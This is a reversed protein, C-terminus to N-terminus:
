LAPTDAKSEASDDSYGMQTTVFSHLIELRTMIDDDTPAEEAKNIRNYIDAMWVQFMERAEDSEMMFDIFLHMGKLMWDIVEDAVEDSMERMQGEGNALSVM